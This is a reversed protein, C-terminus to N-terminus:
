HADLSAAPSAPAVLVKDVRHGDMDVVELRLGKWDFHDGTVPVRGLTAMVLGGVTRYGGEEEHPLEDIQVVEKFEDISLLGDILWSGDERRVVEPRFLEDMLPIDGVIAELIDNITTMGQLGGYEDLVLASHVHAQKFRELMAMAPVSEPVFLAPRLVSQLDISQGALSQALLDKAYVLGVVQDLSGHAVPFRSHGGITVKHRIDEPSDDLDLWIIETRPTMYTIVRQDALRFVRKVMEQETREFVGMSTGQEIMINIEEETVPPESSARVRLVRLVFRTSVGLLRVLPSAVRSLALMPRAIASAIGEANNLALQKPALEGIVLSLYTIMLVVISLSIAESYPALMPVRGIEAALTEAITAGGFAGALIGILTIGIQVTSLFREPANALELAVRARADGAEARQQLRVKRASVVAIESMAFVGNAIILLVILLIELLAPSM